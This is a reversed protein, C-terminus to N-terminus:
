LVNFTRFSDINHLKINKKDCWVNQDFNLKDISVLDVTVGSLLFFCHVSKDIRAKDASSLGRSVERM